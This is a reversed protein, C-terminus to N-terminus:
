KELLSTWNLVITFPSTTFELSPALLLFRSGDPNADWAPFPALTSLTSITPHGQFLVEPTGRDFMTETKVAVALVKGEPTRYYLERGDNKWRPGLGGGQSIQRIGEALSANGGDHLFGQVYVENIGSRDSVYAVWRMNPSFHGDGEDSQTQLLSIERSGNELSLVRLDSNSNKDITTYLVFRGDRSWSTPYKNDSSEFLLEEEGIESVSKQYLNFAGERDSTFIIKSGDPSWIPRTNNSQGFTLRIDTDRTLNHVYVDPLGYLQEPDIWSSAIHKGDASIALRYYIGAEGATGLSNGQRDFWTPQSIQSTGSRYILVGTESASFFGYQLYNGVQDDISIPEGTLDLKKEDFPRAMLTQDHMFLLYGVTSEAGPVYMAASSTIMLQKSEQEEPKADLSGVYVGTKEPVKSECFYIFHRGDPLFSPLYHRTEQHEPDPRTVPSPDGSTAPVKVIGETANYDGFIIVGERNWAGGIASGSLNCLVQPPSGSIDIRKLKGGADFAISRSDPSWFFPPLSSGETGRLPHSELSNLGRLWLRQGEDDVASFALNRGDPSLAFTGMTGPSLNEPYLLQLRMPEIPAPARGLLYLFALVVAVLVAAAAASWALWPRKSPLATAKGIDRTEELEIRLDAAHHFRRSANKELCRRMVFRINQPINAPLAKWDPEGRLIAALAETVTEGGFVRKGTLCEFLICGFAWIDARKDVSKGKAQEPSMYAATGLVVGPQTMAETITPSQSSDASQIEDSLAKALGFDLIKVKDEGTIMVNAPKLDRHIVGKEHAAELGQVIQRCIGLAEEVPLAGKSIRAQLTEGEVYEMILFRKGDAQELGYIAAINPHNLSALLKAEREFRAMREPDGTFVDPLFKLAVKRDLTTDDALYVEGMGGKGIKELIRYHSVTQGIEPM